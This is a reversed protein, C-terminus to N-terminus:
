KRGALREYALTGVAIVAVFGGYSFSTDRLGVHTALVGAVLAPISFALHSVLYVASLLGAAGPGPANRALRPPTSM